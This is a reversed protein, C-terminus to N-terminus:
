RDLEKLAQDRYELNEKVRALEDLLYKNTVTDYHTAGSDTARRVAAAVHDRERRLVVEVHSGRPLEKLADDVEDLVAMHDPFAHRMRRESNKSHQRDRWLYGIWFGPALLFLARDVIGESWVVTVSGYIFVTVIASVTGAIFWFALITGRLSWDFPTVHYGGTNPIQSRLGEVVNTLQGSQILQLKTKTPESLPGCEFCNLGASNFPDFGIEGVIGGYQNSNGRFADRAAPDLNRLDAAFRGAVGGEPPVTQGVDSWFHIQDEIMTTQDDAESHDIAQGIGRIAGFLVLVTLLVALIGLQTLLFRQKMTEGM